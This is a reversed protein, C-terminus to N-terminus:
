LRRCVVSLASMRCRAFCCQGMLRALSLTRALLRRVLRDVFKLSTMVITKVAHRMEAHAVPTQGDTGHM